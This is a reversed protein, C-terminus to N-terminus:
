EQAPFEFVREAVGGLGRLALTTATRPKRTFVLIGEVHHSDESTPIWGVPREEVGDQWELRPNLAFDFNRLDGHHKDITLIIAVKTGLDVLSSKVPDVSKLRGAAVLVPRVARLRL